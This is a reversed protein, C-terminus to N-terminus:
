PWGAVAAVARGPSNEFRPPAMFALLELRLEFKERGFVLLAVRSERPAFLARCDRLAVRSFATVRECFLARENLEREDFEDRAVLEARCDVRGATRCFVERGAVRVLGARECFWGAREAAGRCDCLLLPERPPLLADCPPPDWLM